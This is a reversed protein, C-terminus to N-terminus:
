GRGLSNQTALVRAAAFAAHGASVSLVRAERAATAVDVRTEPM